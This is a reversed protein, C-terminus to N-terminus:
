RPTFEGESGPLERYAYCGVEGCGVEGWLRGRLSSQPPEDHPLNTPARLERPPEHSFSTGGRADPGTPGDPRSERPQGGSLLKPRCARRHDIGDRDDQGVTQLPLGGVRQRQGSCLVRCPPSDRGQMETRGAPSLFDAIDDQGIIVQFFRQSNGAGNNPSPQR